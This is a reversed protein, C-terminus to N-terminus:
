HRRLFDVVAGISEEPRQWFYAHAVGSLVRLEANPIHEALYQSQRLHSGTGGTTHDEDGVIVFTPAQIEALREATQHQQRAIVHRLYFHLPPRNDWFAEVLPQVVESHDQAFDPTFFSPGAIHERIYREYGKEILDVAANFPIGRTVKFNPDFEGPGSAALTLSRVRRPYDLALWQAVRGGMSHGLAHARELNLADLLGAADAAFMRTSYVVDPKDSQGLGRHDYTIVTFGAAAFRASVGTRWTAGPFGTGTILLLPPGDGEIEYHLKLDNVQVFPM